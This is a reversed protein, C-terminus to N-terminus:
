ARFEVSESMRTLKIWTRDKKFHFFFGEYKIAYFIVNHSVLNFNLISKKKCWISLTIKKQVRSINYFHIQEYLQMPAANQQCNHKGKCTDSLVPGTTHPTYLTCCVANQIQISHATHTDHPPATALACARRQNASAGPPPFLQSSAQINVSRDVNNDTPKGFDGLATAKAWRLAFNM